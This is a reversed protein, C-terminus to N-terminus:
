SENKLREPQRILVSMLKEIDNFYIMFARMDQFETDSMKSLFESLKEKGKQQYAKDAEGYMAYCLESLTDANAAAKKIRQKDKDNLSSIDM